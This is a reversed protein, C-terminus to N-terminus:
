GAGGWVLRVGGSVVVVGGCVVGSLVVGCWGVGCWWVRCWRLGGM